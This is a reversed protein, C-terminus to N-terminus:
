HEVQTQSVLPHIVLLEAVPEGVVLVLVGLGSLLRGVSELSDVALGGDHLQGTRGGGGGVSAWRAITFSSVNCYNRPIFFSLIIDIEPDIRFTCKKKCIKTRIFKKLHIM